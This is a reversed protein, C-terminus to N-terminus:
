RDPGPADAPAASHASGTSDAPGTADAPGAQSEASIAQSEAPIAQGEAPREYRSLRRALQPDLGAVMGWLRAIRESLNEPAAGARSAAALDDIARTLDDLSPEPTSCVSSRYGPWCEARVSM